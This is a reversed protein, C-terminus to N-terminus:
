KGVIVKAHRIIKDNLYYGPEVEDLVKGVETEAPAPIETIAEHLDADFAEGISTMKKLGKQQLTTHLKNFILTVGERIMSIDETEANQRIARETDDLVPLLAQLIDRGATQVLDIREKATRRRFNDFEAVLRLYKDKLAELEERLKETELNEKEEPNEAMNDNMHESPDPHRPQEQEQHAPQSDPAQDKQQENM